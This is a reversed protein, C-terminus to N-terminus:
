LLDNSFYYIWKLLGSFSRCFLFLAFCGRVYVREDREEPVVREGLRVLERWEGRLHLFREREGWFIVFLLQVLQVADDRKWELESALRNDWCLESGYWGATVRQEGVAACKPSWVWGM